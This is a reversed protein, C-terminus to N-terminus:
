DRPGAYKRIQELLSTVPPRDAPGSSVYHMRVIGEPDILVDGGLQKFDSRSVIFKRGKALLKAYIWWAPPGYVNWWSGHDMGYGNYLARSEDVLLPWQLNTDRVYAQALPGAEFTVVAVRVGLDDLQNKIERL